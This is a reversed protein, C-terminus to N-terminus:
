KRETLRKCNDARKSIPCFADSIKKRRKATLIHASLLAITSKTNKMFVASCHLATQRARLATEDPKPCIAFYGKRMGTCRLKLILRKPICPLCTRVERIMSDKCVQLLIIHWIVLCHWGKFIATFSRVHAVTIFKYSKVSFPETSEEDFSNCEMDYLNEGAFSRMVYYNYDHYEAGTPDTNRKVTSEPICYSTFCLCTAVLLAINRKNKISKHESLSMLLVTLLCWFLIIEFRYPLVSTGFPFIFASKLNPPFIDFLNTVPFINAVETMILATPFMDTFIPSTLFVIALLAIYQTVKKRLSAIYAGALVALIGILFFNLFTSIIIHILFKATLCGFLGAAIVNCIVFVVFFAGSISAMVLFQKRKIRNVGTPTASLAEKISAKETVGFYEYSVILFFIFVYESFGQTKFFVWVRSLLDFNDLYPLNDIFTKATLAILAVSFVSLLVVIPINRFFIKRAQKSIM